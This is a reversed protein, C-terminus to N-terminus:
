CRKDSLTNFVSIEDVMKFNFANTLIKSNRYYEIISSSNNGRPINELFFTNIADLDTKLEKWKMLKSINVSIYLFHSRKEYNMEHNTLNEISQHNM